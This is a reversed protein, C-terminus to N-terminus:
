RECLVSELELERVGSAGRWRVLIRVPLLTYDASHDAVDVVGDLDLDRPMGLDGDVVDERLQLVGAVDVDPFQVEGCLGDADGPAPDLGAVAFNAGPPAITLGGNDAASANYARYIEAFPAGQIQELLQVAARQAVATESSVRHMGSSAVLSSVLASLAVVMVCMAVSVEVLSFGARTRRCHLQTTPM